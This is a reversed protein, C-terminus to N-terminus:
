ESYSYHGNKLSYQLKKIDIKKDYFLLGKLIAPIFLRADDLSGNFTIRIFHGNQYIDFFYFYLRGPNLEVAYYWANYKLNNFKLGIANNDNKFTTRKVSSTVTSEIYDTEWKQLMSLYVKAPANNKIISEKEIVQIYFRDKLLQLYNNDIWNPTEPNPEDLRLTFNLLDCSYFLLFGKKSKITGSHGAQAKTESFTFTLIGIFIVNFILTAKKM